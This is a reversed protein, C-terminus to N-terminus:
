PPAAVDRLTARAEAAATGVEVRVVVDAGARRFWVLSGGNSRAADAAGAPGDTVGALAAADAATRARAADVAGRALGGVAVVAVM